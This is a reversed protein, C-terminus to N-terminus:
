YVFRNQKLMLALASWFIVHPAQVLQFFFAESWNVTIINVMSHWVRSVQRRPIRESHTSGNFHAIFCIKLFLFLEKNWKQCEWIGKKKQYIQTIILWLMLIEKVCLCATLWYILSKGDTTGSWPKYYNYWIIKLSAIKM